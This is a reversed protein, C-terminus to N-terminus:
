WQSLSSPKKEHLLQLLYNTAKWVSGEPAITVDRLVSTHTQLWTNWKDRQQTQKAERERQRIKFSRESARHKRLEPSLMPHLLRQLREKLEATSDATRHLARLWRKPRGAKLYIAHALSLAVLQDDLLVRGQVDHIIQEFDDAGFETFDPFVRVQWPETLREGKSKDLEARAHAIEYWFLAHNLERWAPVLERLKHEHRTGDHFHTGLSTLTMLALSPESLANSHLASALRECAQTGYKLLWGNRQSVEFYRREIFPPEQLRKLLGSCLESLDDLPLAAIVRELAGDFSGYSFQQPRGLRDILDFLLTSSTTLTSAETILAAAVAEDNDTISSAIADRALRAKDGSATAFVARVAAIRTSWCVSSDIAFNLALDHCQEIRGQWVMALLV